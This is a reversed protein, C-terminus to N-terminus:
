FTFFSFSFYFISILSNRNTETYNVIFKKTQKRGHTNNLERFSHFVPGQLKKLLLVKLLPVFINSFSIFKNKDQRVTLCIQKTSILTQETTPARDNNQYNSAIEEVECAGQPKRQLSHYHLHQMPRMYLPHLHIGTMVTSYSNNLNEGEKTQRTKTCVIYFINLAKYLIILNDKM